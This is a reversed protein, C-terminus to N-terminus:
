YLTLGDLPLKQPAIQESRVSEAFFVQGDYRGVADRTTGTEYDIRSEEAEGTREFVTLQRLSQLWWRREASDYSLTLEASTSIQESASLSRDIVVVRQQRIALELNREPPLDVGCTACPLVFGWGTAQFGQAGRAGLLLARRGEANRYVQAVGQGALGLDGEVQSELSFGDPVFAEPRSAVAPIALAAPIYPGGAEAHAPAACALLIGALIARM